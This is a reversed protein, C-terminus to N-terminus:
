KDGDKAKPIYGFAALRIHPDGTEHRIYEEATAFDAIRGAVWDIEHQLWRLALREVLSLRHPYAAPWLRTLAILFDSYLTYDQLVVVVPETEKRRWARVALWLVAYLRFPTQFLLYAQSRTEDDM